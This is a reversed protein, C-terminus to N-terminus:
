NKEHEGVEKKGKIVMRKLTIHRSNLGGNTGM